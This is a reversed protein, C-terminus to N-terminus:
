KMRSNICHRYVFFLTYYKINQRKFFTSVTGLKASNFQRMLDKVCRWIRNLLLVSCFSNLRGLVPGRHKMLDLGVISNNCKLSNSNNFQHKMAVVAVLYVKLAVINNTTTKFHKEKYKGTVAHGVTHGIASGVAVGGATAAMQGFLGPQQPQAPPAQVPAPPPAHQTRAPLNSSARFRICYFVFESSKSVKWYFFILTKLVCFGKDFFTLNHWIFVDYQLCVLLVFKQFSFSGQHHVQLVDVDRCKWLKKKKVCFGRM